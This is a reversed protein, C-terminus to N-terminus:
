EAFAREGQFYFTALTPWEWINIMFINSFSM